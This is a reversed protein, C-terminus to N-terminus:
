GVNSLENAASDSPKQHPSSSLVSNPDSAKRRKRSPRKPKTTKLPARARPTSKPESPAKSKARPRAKDRSPQSGKKSQSRGVARACRQGFSRVTKLQATTLEMTQAQKDISQLTAAVQQSDNCSIELFTKYQLYSTMLVRRLRALRARSLFVISKGTKETGVKVDLGRLLTAICSQLEIERLGTVRSPQRLGDALATPDGLQRTLFNPVDQQWRAQFETGLATLKEERARASLKEDRSRSSPSFIEKARALFPAILAHQFRHAEAHEPTRHQQGPNRLLQELVQLEDNGPDKVLKV